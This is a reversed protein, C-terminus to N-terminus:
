LPWLTPSDAQREGCPNFSLGEPVSEPCAPENTDEFRRVCSISKKKWLPIGNRFIALCLCSPLIDPFHGCSRKMERNGSNTTSPQIPPMSSYTCGSIPYWDLDSSPSARHCLRPPRSFAMVRGSVRRNRCSQCPLIKNEAAIFTLGEEKQLALVKRFFDPLHQEMVLKGIDHLLGAIFCDDPPAKRSTEALRRSTVAVALSHKWLDRIDFSDYKEKTRFIDIASITAISNRVTNVGLIMLAQSIDAIRTRYGYFPSNVLKLIKATIAQDKEIVEQMRSNSVEDDQLMRNIELLVHPITPLNQIGDLIARVARRDM